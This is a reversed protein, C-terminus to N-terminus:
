LPLFLGTDPIRGLSQHGRQFQDTIFNVDPWNMADAVAALFAPNATPSNSWQVHPTATSLIEASLPRLSAAIRDLREIRRLRWAPTRDRLLIVQDIAASLDDEFRPAASHAPHQQHLASDM